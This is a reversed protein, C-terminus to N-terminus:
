QNCKWVFFYLFFCQLAINLWSIANKSCQTKQNFHSMQSGHWSGFVEGWEVLSRNWLAFWILNLICFITDFRLCECLLQGNHFLPFMIRNWLFHWSRSYHRFANKICDTRIFVLQFLLPLFLLTSHVSSAFSLAFLDCSSRTWHRSHCDNSTLRRAM